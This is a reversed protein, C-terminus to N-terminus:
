SRGPGGTRSTRRPQCRSGPGGARRCCGPRGTSTSARRRGRVPAPGRGAARVAAIGLLSSGVALLQGPEWPSTETLEERDLTAAVGPYPTVQCSGDPQVELRLALPPVSPDGIRISATEASGIDAAGLSIRHVGGAAPGGVLRIEVLGTPEPRVCGSPDGLSLVAGDRIPSSALTLDPPVPRFDVFIPVGPSPMYRPSGPQDPWPQRARPQAPAQGRANATALSGPPRTHPFSLVQGGTGQDAAAPGAAAKGETTPLTAARATGYAMRALEAAVDAVPTAPDADLVVDAWRRTAPSVVTLALRM